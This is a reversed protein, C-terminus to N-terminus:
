GDPREQSGKEFVVPECNVRGRIARTSQREQLSLVNIDNQHIQMHWADAPEVHSDLHAPGVGM